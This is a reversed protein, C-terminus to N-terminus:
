AAPPKPANSGNPNTPPADQPQAGYAKMFLSRLNLGGYYSVLELFKNYKPSNFYERPPCLVYILNWGFGWYTVVDMVEHMTFHAHM